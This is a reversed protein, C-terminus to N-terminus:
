VLTAVAQVAVLILAVMVARHQQETQLATVVALEPLPEAVVVAVAALVVQGVQVLLIHVVVGAALTFFPLVLFQLHLV